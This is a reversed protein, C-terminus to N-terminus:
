VNKKVKFNKKIRQIEEIGVTSLCIKKKKSQKLQRRLIVSYYLIHPPFSVIRDCKTTKKGESTIYSPQPLITNYRFISDLHIVRRNTVSHLYEVHHSYDIIPFLMRPETNHLVDYGTAIDM